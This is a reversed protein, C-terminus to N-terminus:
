ILSLQTKSRKSVLLINLYAYDKVRDKTLQNKLTYLICTQSTKSTKTTMKLVLHHYLQFIFQKSWWLDDSDQWILEIEYFIKPQWYTWHSMSKGASKIMNYEAFKVTKSYFGRKTKNFWINLIFYYLEKIIIIIIYNWYM